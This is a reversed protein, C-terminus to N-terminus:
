RILLMKRSAIFDGAQLKYIYVGSALNSADFQHEYSGASKYENVLTTVRKGLIDFIELQVLGDTPLDYKITTIPNFPNPYNQHLSYEKPIIQEKYEENIGFKSQLIDNLKTLYDSAGKVLYKDGSIKGLQTNTTDLNLATTLIDLEAYVAEESNPNQQIINNFKNIATIYEGNSVDCKIANQNYIKKILTDAENNAIDEFISQLNSFYSEDEGTLNGIAYLRNYAYLKEETTYNGNVIQEYVPKAQTLNGEAFLKDAESYILDLETIGTRINESAYVTDVIEGSPTSLFVPPAETVEPFPCYTTNYPIFIVNLLPGFRGATPTTEGWWNGRADLQREGDGLSGNILLLTNMGPTSPRDDAIHNCGSELKIGSSSLYIESGDNDGQIVSGTQSGNSLIENYGSLIYTNPWGGQLQGKLNAISGSGVYLGHKINNQAINVGVDPSSNALHLGNVCNTTFNGRIYGASSTMLIGAATSTGSGTIYNGQIYASFVSSVTICSNTLTNQKILVSSYNSVSIGSVSATINCNQITPTQSPQTGESYSGAVLSIGSYSATINSNYINVYSQAGTETVIGQYTGAINCYNMIFSSGPKIVVANDPGSYQLTLRNGTSTGKVEASGNIIIKKGSDFIIKGNTGAVIKGGSKVTINAKAYYIGSVTLTAGNEIT